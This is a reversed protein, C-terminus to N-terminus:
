RLLADARIFDATPPGTMAPLTARAVQGRPRRVAHGAQPRRAKPLLPRLPCDACLPEAQRCRLKGIRVLQAHYDGWYAPLEQPPRNKLSAECLSKLEEYSAQPACWGHRGFIRRTYADVVFSAHGGAYLLMSDATEPGIGHIALLRNRVDHTRGALLRSVSGGFDERLVRVFESLRRAKVNFYGAPRILEALATPSLSYIGSVSLRGASKLRSIAREVNTWSTNQTLIAGVCVEFPSDAPWWHQPGHAAFLLDYAKALPHPSGPKKARGGQSRLRPSDAPKAHATM